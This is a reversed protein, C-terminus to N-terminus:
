LLKGYVPLLAGTVASAKESALFLIVNALEIPKVWGNFDANPMDERNRATDITSPLIANVTIGDDKYEKALTETLRLVVSKSSVYPGMRGKGELGARAGINVIRGEGKELMGPIAYKSTYLMTHANMTMMQDFVSLDMEHTRPGMTFGGAINVVVDVAQHEQTITGFVQQVAEENTLDVAHGSCRTGITSAVQDIREQKLDLIVVTANHDHFSSAVTSGLAGAGGTIVVVKNTFDEM